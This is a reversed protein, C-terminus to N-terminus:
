KVGKVPSNPAYPLRGRSLQDVLGSVADGTPIRARQQARAKTARACNGERVPRTPSRAPCPTPCPRPSTRRTIPSSGARVRGAQGPSRSRPAGPSELLGQPPTVLVHEGILGPGAQLGPTAVLPVRGRGSRCAGGAEAACRLLGCVDGRRPEVLRIRRGPRIGRGAARRPRDGHGATPRGRSHTRGPRRPPARAVSQRSRTLFADATVTSARGM